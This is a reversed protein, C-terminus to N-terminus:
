PNRGARTAMRRQVTTVGGPYILYGNAQAATAHVQQSCIVEYDSVFAQVQVGLAEGFGIVLQQL